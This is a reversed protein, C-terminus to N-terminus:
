RDGRGCADGARAGRQDEVGAEVGGGAEGEARRGDVGDEDVYVLRVGHRQRRRGGVGGAGPQDRQAGSGDGGGDDVVVGLGDREGLGARGDGREGGGGVGG